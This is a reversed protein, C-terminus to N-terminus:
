NLLDNYTIISVLFVFPSTYKYRVKIFVYIQDCTCLTVLCVRIVLFNDSLGDLNVNSENDCADYEFCFQYLQYKHNTSELFFVTM